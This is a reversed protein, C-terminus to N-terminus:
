QLKAQQAQAIAAPTAAQAMSRPRAAVKGRVCGAMAEFAAEEDGGAEGAKGATNNGELVKMFNTAESPCLIRGMCYNLALSASRRDEDSKSQKLSELLKGCKSDVSDWDVGDASVSSVPSVPTSPAAAAASTHKAMEKSEADKPADKPNLGEAVFSPRQFAYWARQPFAVLRDLASTVDEVAPRVDVYIQRTYNASADFPPSKSADDPLAKGNPNFYYDIIYHVQLYSTHVNAICPHAVQHKCCPSAYCLCYACVPDNCGVYSGHSAAASGGAGHRGQIPPDCCCCSMCQQSVQKGGRDVFWDHRDFPFGYGAYSKLQAKPSLKWPNGM